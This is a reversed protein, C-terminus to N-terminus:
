SAEEAIRVIECLSRMFLMDTDESSMDIAREEISGSESMLRATSMLRAICKLLGGHLAQVANDMSVSSGSHSAVMEERPWPMSQNSARKSLRRGRTPMTEAAAHQNGAGGAGGLGLLSAAKKPINDQQQHQYESSMRGANSHMRKMAPPPMRAVLASIYNYAVIHAYLADCIYDSCCSFVNKLPNSIPQSSSITHAASGNMGHMDARLSASSARKLPNVKHWLSKRGVSTPSTPPSPRLLDMNPHRMKKSYSRITEITLSSSLLMTEPFCTVSVRLTEIVDPPLPVVRALEEGLFPPAYPKINSQAFSHVSPLPSPSPPPTPRTYGIENRSWANSEPVMVSEGDDSEPFEDSVPSPEAVIQVHRQTKNTTTDVGPRSMAPRQKHKQPVPPPLMHVKTPIPSAVDQPQAVVESVVPELEQPGHVAATEQAHQKQPFSDTVQTGIPQKTFPQTAFQVKNFHFQPSGMPSGSGVSRAKRHLIRTRFDSSASDLMDNEKTPPTPPRPSLPSMPAMTMEEDTHQESEDDSEGEIWICSPPEQLTEDPQPSPKPSPQWNSDEVSTANTIVSHNRYRFSPPPMGGSDEVSSTTELDSSSDEYSDHSQQKELFSVISEREEIAGLLQVRASAMHYPSTARQTFMGAAKARAMYEAAVTCSPPGATMSRAAFVASALELDKALVEPFYEDVRDGMSDELPQNGTSTSSFSSASSLTLPMLGKMSSVSRRRRLSSPTKRSTSSDLSDVSADSQQDQDQEHDPEQEQIQVQTPQLQSAKVPQQVVATSVPVQIINLGDLCESAPEYEASPM